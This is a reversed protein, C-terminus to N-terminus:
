NKGWSKHAQTTALAWFVVGLDRTKTIIVNEQEPFMLLAIGAKGPLCRIFILNILVTNLLQGGGQGHNAKWDGNGVTM